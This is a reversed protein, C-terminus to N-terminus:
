RRCYDKYLQDLRLPDPPPEAKYARMPRALLVMKTDDWAHDEAETDVDDINLPDSPLIPVTRWWNTCNSFIFLNPLGDDDVRLRDHMQDVGTKRSHPKKVEKSIKEDFFIGEAQLIEADSPLVKNTDKMDRPKDWISADAICLIPNLSYEKEFEKMKWGQERTTMKIGENAAKCGYIENFRYLRNDFDTFWYGTSFPKSYGWDYSRYTHIEKAKPKIQKFDFLDLLRDPPNNVDIMHVKRDLEAFVAGPIYDWDGSKLQKKEKEPLGNLWADYQKREAESMLTNDDLTAPLFYVTKTIESEQDYSTAVKDRAPDVFYAKVWAHGINGPNSACRIVGKASTQPRIRSRMYLYQFHSFHTLEDFCIDDYEASQYQYVDNEHECYGFDEISGNHFIWARKSENFKAFTKYYKFSKRILSKELEKYTRRLMLGQSGPYKLRRYLAFLLLGESKGPGAQGGYLIEDIDALEFLMKAQKPTLKLKIESM